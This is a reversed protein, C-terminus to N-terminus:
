KELLVVYRRELLNAYAEQMAESLFSTKILEFADDKLDQFRKFAGEIQKKSLGLDVGFELLLKSTIKKKKGSITLALEEKDEPNVISVNLMDYAPALAWGYSTQVMSFNKLHMDNNGTLYSFLTLEYFRLIDLFTNDAYEQIAKGIREMSGRYKDFAELVQFMDIMHIKTGDETRDIRKTIYSLEGSALRILSHPVVDINFLEAMKMTLDENAPMEPYDQSPPKFIYTGGLAGVVTLRQDKQNNKVISMSLKPQVGPVSVSREVVQKALKSMENLSYDIKPPIETGFFALSCETHFDQGTQIEKYCYLCRNM